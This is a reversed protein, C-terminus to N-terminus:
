FQFVLLVGGVFEQVGKNGATAVVIPDHSQCGSECSGESKLWASAVDSPIRVM